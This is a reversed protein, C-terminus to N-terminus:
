PCSDPPAATTLNVCSNPAAAASSESFKRPSCLKVLASSSLPLQSKARGSRRTSQFMPINSCLKVLASCSHPFQCKIAAEQSPPMQVQRWRSMWTKRKHDFDEIQLNNISEYMYHDHRHTYFHLPSRTKIMTNTDNKDYYSWRDPSCQSLASTNLVVSWARLWSTFSSSGLLGSAPKTTTTM